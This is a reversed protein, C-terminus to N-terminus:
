IRQIKVMGDGFSHEELIWVSIKNPDKLRPKPVEEDPLPINTWWARQRSTNSYYRAHIAVPKGLWRNVQHWDRMDDFVVNEFLYRCKPNYKM